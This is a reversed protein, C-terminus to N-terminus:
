GGPHFFDFIKRALTESVGSVSSLDALSAGAVSRASGFHQLLARKRNAGVGAIEDLPNAGIAASRKKRHGGIVFRHAEDRLRQLYYLVPSKPDLRFAEKGPMYFHERGADRDPGKSIGVLTVDEVGLDAFVQCAISLQGPGGDILVLDPRTWKASDVPNEEEKVMRAFRRTLVERMMAYDDGPTLEEAKINFKRYQGKQFGEPGAVIFAGLAHAGQIHSNDYVEIRRPPADLGFLDAVGELLQTQASNEAMRRGLQERANTLARDMIERKEGRQPMAIEVKMEARLSLAEALLARGPLEESTLVLRPATREDYFQGVFSELVESLALDRDHRPFYPRNGWNQGARFFFVQICTQGGEAHAAFLDAEEFTTPNVGQSAQIHSMARLRDRLKAAAEFDMADSAKTMEAALGEQVARSKGNLFSEAEEVLEHYGGLDIRQVCPASCRKIQFLLCPRTRTEFVSDSCSRLLFARQLTNLTRNVAGASAFPGFYVGKTTKAGRHKLLQPFPHDERLLINPFSKDDRYSVNYRPKLRKILNSELLLAETETETTLFLMEATEAVMRTLRDSHVRGTAYANVRKKLNKAKGVYLVDGAANLMRYVGPADPLTKLYAAIREAGKLPLTDASMAVDREFKPIEAEAIYNHPSFVAGGGGPASSLAPGFGRM